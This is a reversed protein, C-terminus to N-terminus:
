LLHNKRQKESTFRQNCFHDQFGVTGIVGLSQSKRLKGLPPCICVVVSPVVGVSDAAPPHLFHEHGLKRDSEPVGSFHTLM